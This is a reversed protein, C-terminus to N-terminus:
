LWIHLWFGFGFLCISKKCCPNWVYTVKSLYWIMWWTRNLNKMLQQFFDSFFLLKLLIESLVGKM